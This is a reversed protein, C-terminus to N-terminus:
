RELNDSISTSLVNDSKASLISDLTQDVKKGFYVNKNKKLIDRQTLKKPSRVILM